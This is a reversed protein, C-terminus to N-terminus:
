GILPMALDCKRCSSGYTPQVRRVCSGSSSRRESPKWSTQRASPRRKRARSICLIPPSPASPVCRRRAATARRYWRGPICSRLNEVAAICQCQLTCGHSQAPDGRRQERLAPIDFPSWCCLPSMRTRGFHQSKYWLARALMASRTCAPPLGPRMPAGPPLLRHLHVAQLVPLSESGPLAAHMHPMGRAATCVRRVTLILFLLQMSDASAPLLKEYRAMVM